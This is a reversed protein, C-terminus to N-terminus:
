FLRVILRFEKIVAHMKNVFWADNGVSLHLTQSFSKYEPADPM